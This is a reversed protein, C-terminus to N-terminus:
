EIPLEPQAKREPTPKEETPKRRKGAQQLKRVRQSDINWARVTEKMMAHRRRCESCTVLEPDITQPEEDADDGM